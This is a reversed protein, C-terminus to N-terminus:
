NLLQERALEEVINVIARRLTADSIREFARALAQGDDSGVHYASIAAQAESGLGSVRPAGELFYSSTVSFIGAIQALRNPSIHIAGQEYKQVQDLTGGLRDAFKEESLDHQMRLGRVREGVYVDIAKKSARPM